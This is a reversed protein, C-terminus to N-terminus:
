KAVANKIEIMDKLIQVAEIMQLDEQGWAPNAPRQFSRISLGQSSGHGKMFLLFNKDKELRMTSNQVLFPMMRQWTANPKHLNPLYNRQLWGKNREEVDTLPDIYAPMVQDNALPYELYREGLNYPAFETPVIIDAKVGDIQTSKGSVTYYRGVTVKYFAKASEDTVTQYQITGKGYTRQDGVILAVGYDQLAQAVIEAASASAKSALIVLPGDFYMRGDIERLYKIEGKAYKSIVIVGRTIFLGAVKVAQSLFGGANERMDLILGKLEGQKKLKKIADRIDQEASSIHGGEYFSPLVLKGIIGNGCPTSSMQLREDSMVIKERTLFARLPAEHGKRVLGLQLERKGGAKMEELVQEYSLGKASKGEIEVIVDGPLIQGSREAPGGKILDAVVVGEIGERLVVGVGDFQKELSSRMETAEQPSYFASHADLSKALARLTNVCLAHQGKEKDLFKRSADFILYPEEKRQFRRQWLQMIQARQEITWSTLQSLRKEELLCRILLKHQRAKLGEENKAYALYSEAQPAEPQDSNLILEKQIERRWTRVRQIAQQMIMNLEIFDSLDGENYKAICRELAAPTPSLYPEVEEQLLYMKSSDFQEIYIKFARRMLTPSIEKHEVHYALMEEMTSKLDAVRLVRDQGQLMGCLCLLAAGILIRRKM